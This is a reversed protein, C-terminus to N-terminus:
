TTFIHVQSCWNEWRGGYRWQKLDTRIRNMWCPGGIKSQADLPMRLWSTYMCYFELLEDGYDLELVLVAYSKEVEFILM